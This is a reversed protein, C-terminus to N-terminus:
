LCLIPTIIISYVAKYTSKTLFSEWIMYNLWTFSNQLNVNKGSEFSFVVHKHVFLFCSGYKKCLPTASVKDRHCINQHEYCFEITKFLTVSRNIIKCEVPMKKFCTMRFEVHICIWQSQFKMRQYKTFPLAVVNTLDNADPPSPVIKM